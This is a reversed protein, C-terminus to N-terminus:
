ERSIAESSVRARPSTSRDTSGSMAISLSCYPCCRAKMEPTAKRGSSDRAAMGARAMPMSRLVTSRCFSSRPESRCLTALMAGSTLRATSSASTSGSSILRITEAISSSCNSRRMSRSRMWDQPRSAASQPSTPVLAQMWRAHCAHVAYMSRSCAMSSTSTVSTTSRRAVVARLFCRSRAEKAAAAATPARAEVRGSSEGCRALLLLVGRASSGASPPSPPSPPSSLSTESRESAPARSSGNRTEM